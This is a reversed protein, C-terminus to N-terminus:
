PTEPTLDNLPAQPLVNHGHRTYFSLVFMAVMLVVLAWVQTTHIGFVWTSATARFADVLLQVFSYLAITRWFIEGPLEVFSTRWLIALVILLSTFEYLQVPHRVASWLEVGWPLTTPVGYDNGLIFNRFSLVMLAATAGIATADAIQALAIAKRRLLFLLAAGGVLLGPWLALSGPRISILMSPSALYLPYFTAAYGLRAGILGIIGAWFSSDNFWTSWQARHQAPAIRGLAWAGATNFAYFALVAFLPGVPLTLGLVRLVPFM